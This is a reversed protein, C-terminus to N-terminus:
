CDHKQEGTWFGNAVYVDLRSDNDYDLFVASWAWGLWYSRTETSAERFTGDGNDRWRNGELVSGGTHMFYSWHSFQRGLMDNLEIGGDDYHVM